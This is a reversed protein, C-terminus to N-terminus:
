FRPARRYEYRSGGRAHPAPSSGTDASKHRGLGFLSRGQLGVGTGALAFFAWLWGHLRGSGIGALYAGINSGGALSAGIGMLVGGVLGAAVVNWSLGTHVKWT